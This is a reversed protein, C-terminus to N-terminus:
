PIKIWSLNKGVAKNTTLLSALSFIQYCLTFIKSTIKLPVTTETMTGDKLPTELLLM